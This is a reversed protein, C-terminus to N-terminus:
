YCCVLSHIQKLHCSSFSSRFTVLPVRVKLKPMSSTAILDSVVVSMIHVISVVFIALQPLCPRM